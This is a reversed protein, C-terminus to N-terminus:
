CAEFSSPNISGTMSGPLIYCFHSWNVELGLDYFAIHSGGPERQPCSGKSGHQSSAWAVHHSKMHINWNVAGAPGGWDAAGIVQNHIFSRKSSEQGRGKIREALTQSISYLWALRTISWNSGRVWLFQPFYYIIKTTKFAELNQPSKSCLWLLGSCIRKGTIESFGQPCWLHMEHIVKEHQEAKNGIPHVSSLFGHLTCHM